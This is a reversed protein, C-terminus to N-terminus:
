RTLYKPSFSNQFYPSLEKVRQIQTPTPVIFGAPFVSNKNMKSIYKSNKKLNLKNWQKVVQNIGQINLTIVNMSVPDSDKLKITKKNKSPSQINKKIM